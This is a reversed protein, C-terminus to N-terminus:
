ENKGGMAYKVIKEPTADAIDMEGSIRGECMVMIRDCNRMLEDTESSILVVSNGKNVIDKIIQYIEDKAGVDIGKTPEDFIMIPLNRILWKAIIVKQCNGGSLSNIPAHPDSYKTKMKRNYEVADNLMRDDDLVLGTEYNDLSSIVSNAIISRSQIMGDANRDESLYCIGCEAAKKPSTIDVKKGNILVEGATKPVIGCIAKATLTRGSGMLGAFGLVEGKRLTFNIDSLVSSTELNRVELAIPADKLNENTEKKASVIDRGALLRILENKDTFRGDMTKVYKGDKLITIRDAIRGIEELRHSIYIVSVGNSKLERIVDFLAETEKEGLATTPEDMILLKINHTLAKAIEVLQQQSVSLSGMM